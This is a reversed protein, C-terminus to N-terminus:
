YTLFEYLRSSTRLLAEFIEKTLISYVDSASHEKGKYLQLKLIYSIFIILLIIKPSTKRFLLTVYLNYLM